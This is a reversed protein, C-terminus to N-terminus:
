CHLACTGDATCKDPSPHGIGGTLTIIIHQSLSYIDQEIPAEKKAAVPHPTCVPIVDNAHMSCYPAGVDSSVAQFYWLEM